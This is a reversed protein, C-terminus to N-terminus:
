LSFCRRQTAWVSCIHRGKGRVQLDYKLSDSLEAKGNLTGMTGFASVTSYTSTANAAREASEGESGGSSAGSGSSKFSVRNVDGYSVTRLAKTPFTRTDGVESASPKSDAVAVDVDIVATATGDTLTSLNTYKVSSNTANISMNKSAELMFDEMVDVGMDGYDSDKKALTGGVRAAGAGGTGSKTSTSPV